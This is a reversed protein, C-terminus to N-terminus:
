GKIQEPATTTWGLSEFRDLQSQDRFKLKFFTSYHSVKEVPIGNSITFLCTISGGSAVLDQIFKGARSISTRHLSFDRYIPEM